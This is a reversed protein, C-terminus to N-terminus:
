YIPQRKAACSFAFDASFRIKGKEPLSLFIIPLSVPSASAAKGRLAAEGQGRRAIQAHGPFRNRFFLWRKRNRGWSFTPLKPRAAM